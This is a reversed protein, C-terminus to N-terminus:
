DSLWSVLPSAPPEKVVTTYGYLIPSPYGAPQGFNIGKLKNIKRPRTLGDTWFILDGEEDARHIIDISHIKYQPDFQTVDVNNTWVLNKFVPTIVGTEPVIEIIEDFNNSNCIFAIVSNRFEDAYSGICINIGSAYEYSGIRVNGEINIAAGELQEDSAAMRMNIATTWDSVPMLHHETDWNLGGQTFTKVEQM